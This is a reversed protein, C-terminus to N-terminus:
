SIFISWCRVIHGQTLLKTGGWRQEKETEVPALLQVRECLKHSSKMLVDM